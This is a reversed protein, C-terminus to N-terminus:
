KVPGWYEFHWMEDVGANDSLRWPNYWGYLAGLEAIQTYINNDVRAKLNVGPNTSGGVLRYLNSFDIAGGWGHPSSGASAVGKKPTKSLGAQHQISRYASSVTYSIKNNDLAEKWKFWNEAADPALLFEGDPYYTKIAGPGIKVLKNLPLKGNEFNKSLKKALDSNSYSTSGKRQPNIRFSPDAALLLQIVAPSSGSNTPTNNTTVGSANGVAGEGIVSGFPNKNVVISEITTTWENNQITNTIGKILFELSSPYNAPLYTADITYKQYIKMGSLGDMILQLDFPLFGLNPSSPSSASDPIPPSIEGSVIQAATKESIGTAQLTQKAQDYEYFQAATNTFNDIATKNWTPIGGDVSGLESLFTNYNELIKKYNNVISSSGENQPLPPDESFTINEKFSDELGANMRSLATSDQGVIYGNSTAGITIMSALNPPITTTFSIDKIFGANSQIIRDNEKEYRYGYVDFIATETSIKQEKLWGDKDPLPIEDIIQITKDDTIVPQLKNFAGTSSNWGDCISELLSYLSIKGDKDKLSNITTLIWSMDFYANMIRGYTNKSGQLTTKFQDCGPAFEVKKKSENFTLSTNFVCVGPNNSIQRAMLYIINSKPDTDFKLLTVETNNVKPIIKKELFKLFYGLRIYYHTGEKKYVQSFAIVSKPDIDKDEFAMNNKNDYSIAPVTFTNKSNTVNREDISMKRQLRYFEKGIEHVNAFSKIVEIPKADAEPEKSSEDIDIGPLLINTKLSEIVDGMSRITLTINYTGEKTFTWNFNVVKGIIADYNGNSALRKENVKEPYNDYKINKNFFDNVLSYSDIDTQYDGNNNYYSSHGWELLVTFGLRLYLIDIIDFQERNNAQINVTATKLSGRTETKITAQTIGPIPRLGFNTGGMGYAYDNSDGTGPWVGGRQFNNVKSTGNFLIYNKALDLGVNPLNRNPPPTVVNVSSVLRCWGTRNNLYNLQENTRNISGYIEQRKKVQNIIESAFGEGVINGM